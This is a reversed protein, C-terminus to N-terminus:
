KQMRFSLLENTVRKKKNKYKVDPVETIEFEEIVEDINVGLNNLIRIGVGEGEELMAYFLANVGVDLIGNEKTDIIANEIVRKLMPTYLFYSNLSNGIGMTNILEEKFTLYTINYENLKKTVKLDQFSLISLLLHESGVFPHKLEQMEIKAKKLIKKAEEDFRQFM